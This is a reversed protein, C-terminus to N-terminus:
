FLQSTGVTFFLRGSKRDRPFRYTLDLRIIDLIKGIGIGAEYYWGNTVSKQDLWTQAVSGYLILETNRKYFFPIGLALFPISRFNHEVNFLIFKDGVFEKVGATKLVGFPAIGSLRSDLTFLKQPPLKGSSSGASFALRMVPSFLHSQLFTRFNYTTSFLYSTFDLNSKLVNPATREIAIEVADIPILNLFVPEQGIRSRFTFSRIKGDIIPPNNRFNNGLTIFGFDSNVFLSKHWESNFGIEIKLNNIPKLVSFARWGSALFYDRYDNRGILSTFSNLLPHYFNGDPSNDLKRYVEFGVGYNRKADFFRTGGFNMKFINDSFGYGAAANIATSNTVSDLQYKGGFFFGEVRNFRADVYKLYSLVNGSDAFLTMSAGGPRFQVALTKTSDLSDYAAQETETLPLVESQKWFISDYVVASSDTTLRPKKFITDPIVANIKYDTIVSTQEFTLKPFTFGAFSIKAGGVIRIDTPMWFEDDYLSFKQRYNLKLDTVFPINFVENPQLDVGMVAFTYDAITIIGQFLPQLRSKPIVNIEYIEYGSKGYTRLLKYDYYDLAGRATPGIFTYGASRIEDDNFNTIGWVAAFNNSSPINETQRKQKIIERLTDGKQWYGTSYSETISAITTDRYFLQRTFAQIEYSNLKDMWMRKNAIAKRIIEIAPDEAIIIMEPMQIQVAKLSINKILDANLNIRDSDTKYGVHSFILRYEGTPLSLQFYGNTNTITGKSTGEIRVSAAPIPQASESDTVKGSFTFIHQPYLIGTLFISLFLVTIGIRWKAKICDKQDSEIKIASM